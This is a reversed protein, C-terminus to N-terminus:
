YERGAQPQAPAAPATSVVVPPRPLQEPGTQRLLEKLSAQRAQEQQAQIDKERLDTWTPYSVVEAAQIGPSIGLGPMKPVPMEPLKVGAPAAPVPLSEGRDIRLVTALLGVLKLATRCIVYATALGGLIKMQLEIPLVTEAHDQLTVMISTLVGMFLVVWFETTKLGKTIKSKTEPTM